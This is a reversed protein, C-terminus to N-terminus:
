FFKTVDNNYSIAIPGNGLDVLSYVVNNNIDKFVVIEQFTAGQFTQGNITATWNNGSNNVILKHGPLNALEYSGPQISKFNGTTIQEQIYAHLGPSYEIMYWGPIHKSTAFVMGPMVTVNDNNQNVTIYKTNAEDYVNGNKGIAVFDQASIQSFALFVLSLISILNKM